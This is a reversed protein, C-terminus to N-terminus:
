AVVPKPVLHEHVYLPLTLIKPSGDVLVAVHEIDQKFMPTVATSGLAKKRLSRLRCCREAFRYSGLQYQCTLELLGFSRESQVMKHLWQGFGLRLPM